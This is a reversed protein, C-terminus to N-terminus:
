QQVTLDALLEAIRRDGYGAQQLVEATDHGPRTPPRSIGISAVTHRVPYGVWRFSGGDVPLEVTCGDLYPDAAVEATDLVPGAPVGEARFLRLWDMTSRKMLMLELEHNLRHRNAVRSMPTRYEEADLEPVLRALKLWLAQSGVTMVINSDATRYVGFPAFDHHHAGFAPFPRGTAFTYGLRLPLLSLLCDQLPVSIFEGVGTRERVRLASLIAIVAYLAGSMDAAPYGPLPPPEDQNRTMDMVGSMGEHIYDFSPLGEYISGQRFGSIETYILGPNRSRVATYDLGLGTLAGPSLNHVLIDADAILDLAVARGKSAKLNVQIYRKEVNVSAFYYSLPGTGITPLASRMLEGAGPPEIKIVDAGMQGLLSTCFPGAGVHTIDIVKLGHLPRSNALDAPDKM